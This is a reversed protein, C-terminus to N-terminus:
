GPSDVRAFTMGLERPSYSSHLYRASLRLVSARILIIPEYGSILPGEAPKPWEHRLPRITPDASFRPM